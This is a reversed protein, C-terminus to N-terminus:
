DWGLSLDRWEPNMSEVLANKKQRRWRKIEKERELAVNVDSTVEYHVLKHVNSKKTFGDALKEKHEFLRRQLNNTM